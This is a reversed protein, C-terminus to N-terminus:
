EIATQLGLLREIKIWGELNQWNKWNRGFIKKLREETILEEKYIFNSLASKLGIILNCFAEITIAYDPDDKQWSIIYRKNLYLRNEVGITFDHIYTRQPLIVVNLLENINVRTEAVEIEETATMCFFSGTENLESVINEAAKTNPKVNLYRLVDYITFGHHVSSGKTVDFRDTVLVDYLKRKSM